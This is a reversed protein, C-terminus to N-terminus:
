APSRDLAATRLAQWPEQRPHRDECALRCASRHEYTQILFLLEGPSACQSDCMTFNVITLAEVVLSGDAPNAFEPNFELPRTGDEFPVYHWKPRGKKTLGNPRKECRLWTAEKVYLRDGVRGYPSVWEFEGPKVGFMGCPLPISVAGHRNLYPKYVGAPACIPLM